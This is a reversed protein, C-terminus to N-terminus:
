ERTEGTTYENSAVSASTKEDESKTANVIERMLERDIEEVVKSYKTGHTNTKGRLYKMKEADIVADNVQKKAGRAISALSKLSFKSAGARPKCSASFQVTGPTGALLGQRGEGLPPQSPTTGAYFNGLQTEWKKKLLVNPSNQDEDEVNSCPYIDLLGSAHTIVDDETILTSGTEDADSSPRKQYGPVNMTCVEFPPSFLLTAADSPRDEDPLLTNSEVIRDSALSSLTLTTNDCSLMDVRLLKKLLENAHESVEDVSMDAPKAVLIEQPVVSYRRLGLCNILLMGEVISEDDYDEDDNDGLRCQIIGDYHVRSSSDINIELPPDWISSSTSIIDNDEILDKATCTDDPPRASACSLPSVVPIKQEVKPKTPPSSAEKENKMDKSSIVIDLLDQVRRKQWDIRVGLLDFTGRDNDMMLIVVPVLEHRHDESSSVNITGQEQMGADGSGTDRFADAATRAAGNSADFLKRPRLPSGSGILSSTVKTTNEATKILSTSSNFPSFLESSFHEDFCRNDEDGRKEDRKSEAGKGHELDDSFNFLGDVDDDDHDFDSSTESDSDATSCDSESISNAKSSDADGTDSDSDDFANANANVKTGSDEGPECEDDEEVIRVLDSQQKGRQTIGTKACAAAFSGESMCTIAGSEGTQEMLEKWELMTIRETIARYMDYYVEVSGGDHDGHNSAADNREDGKREDRIERLRCKLRRKEKHLETVTLYTIKKGSLTFKAADNTTTSTTSSTTKCRTSPATSDLLDEVADMMDDGASFLDFQPRPKEETCGGLNSKKGADATTGEEGSPVGDSISTSGAENRQETSTENNDIDYDYDSSSSSSDAISNADSRASGDSDTTLTRILRDLENELHDLRTRGEPSLGESTSTTPRHAHKAPAPPPPAAAAADDHMKEPGHDNRLIVKHIRDHEASAASGNPESRAAPPTSM